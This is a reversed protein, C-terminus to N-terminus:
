AGCAKPSPPPSAASSPEAGAGLLAFPGQGHPLASAVAQDPPGLGRPPLLYGTCSGRQSKGAQTQLRPAQWRLPPKLREPAGGRTVCPVLPVKRFWACAQIRIRYGACAQIRYGSGPYPNLVRGRSARIHWVPVSALVGPSMCKQMPAMCM